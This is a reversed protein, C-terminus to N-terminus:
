NDVQGALATPWIWIKVHHVHVHLKDGRVRGHYRSSRESAGLGYPSVFSATLSLTTCRLPQCAFGCPQTYHMAFVSLHRRLRLTSRTRPNMSGRVCRMVKLGVSLQNNLTSQKCCDESVALRAM